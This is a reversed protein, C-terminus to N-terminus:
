RRIPAYARALKRERQSKRWSFLAVILLTPVILADDMLGLIPILDPIVDIPSAGYILALLAPVLTRWTAFRSTPLAHRM